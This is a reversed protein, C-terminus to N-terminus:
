MGFHKFPDFLPRFDWNQIKDVKTPPIWWRFHVLHLSVQVFAIKLPKLTLFTDPPHRSDVQSNDLPHRVMDITDPSHRTLELHTKLLDLGHIM